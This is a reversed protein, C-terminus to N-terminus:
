PEPNEKHCSSRVVGKRRVPDSLISVRIDYEVKDVFQTIRGDQPKRKEAIDLGSIIKIRAIIAPLTFMM